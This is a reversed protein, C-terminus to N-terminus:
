FESADTFIVQVTYADGNNVMSIPALPDREAFLLQAGQVVYYGYILNTTAGNKVWTLAAAQTRGHAAVIAPATWTGLPQSAYGTFTAETFSALVSGAVPTYDNQYLKITCGAGLPANNNGLLTNLFFLLATDPVKLALQFLDFAPVRQRVDRSAPSSRLWRALLWRLGPRARLRWFSGM